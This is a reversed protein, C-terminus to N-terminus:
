RATWGGDVPITTGTVFRTHPSALFLLATKLDQPEGVRGLMTHAALAAAFTADAQAAPGPFPGPAICNVRIGEPGLEAAAYRTLQILAAKAAGYFPPNRAEESAYIGFDPAVLGYMSGINVVSASGGAAASAVLGDRAAEIATWASTVALTFAEDFDAAVSTRLSGGRGVHANNVLVDLRGHAAAASRLQDPWEPGTVDTALATVALGQGRLREALSELADKGRAVALVDSGAEALAEVMATGLWGSAGTVVSFSQDLRFLDTSM